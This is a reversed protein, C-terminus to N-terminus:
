GCPDSFVCYLGPVRTNTNWAFAHVFSVNGVFVSRSDALQRDEDTEMPVSPEGSESPPVDEAKEAAAQLERLKNAEKEMEEVRQRM